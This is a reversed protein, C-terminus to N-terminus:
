NQSWLMFALSAICILDHVKATSGSSGLRTRRAAQKIQKNQQERPGTNGIVMTGYDRIDEAYRLMHFMKPFTWSKDISSFVKVIAAGVRCVCLRIRFM